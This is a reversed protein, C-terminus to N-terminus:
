ATRRAPLLVQLANWKGNERIGLVSDDAYREFIMGVKQRHCSPCRELMSQHLDNGSFRGFVMERGCCPLRFIALMSM